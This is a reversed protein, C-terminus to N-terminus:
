ATLSLLSYVQSSFPSRHLASLIFCVALCKSTPFMSNKSSELAMAFGSKLWTGLVLPPTSGDGRTSRIWALFVVSSTDSNVGIKTMISFQVMTFIAHIARISLSTDTDRSRSESTQNLRMRWNRANGNRMSWRWWATVESDMYRISPDALSIAIPAIGIALGGHHFKTYSTSLLSWLINRVRTVWNECM